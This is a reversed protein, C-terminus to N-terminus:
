RRSRRRSAVLLLGGLTCVVRFADRFREHEGGCLFLVRDVFHQDVAKGTIREATGDWSHKSFIDFGDESMGCVVMDGEVGLLGSAVCEKALMSGGLDIAMDSCLVLWDARGTGFSMSKELRRLEEDVVGVVEVPVSGRVRTLNFWATDGCRGSKSLLDAFTSAVTQLDMGLSGFLSDLDGCAGCRSWTLVDGLRAVMLRDGRIREGCRMNPHFRGSSADGAGAILWEDMRLEEWVDTGSLKALVSRKHADRM